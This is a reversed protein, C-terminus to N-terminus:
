CGIARTTAPTTSTRSTTSTMVLLAVPRATITSARVAARIRRNLQARNPAQRLAQRRLVDAAMTRDTIDTLSLGVAQGPLPFAYASYIREGRSRATPRFDDITFGQGHRVVDALHAILDGEADVTLVDGFAAGIAEDPDLDGVAAGEPNIATLRLSDDDALDDLAFVYLATKIGDVLDIFQNAKAQAVKTATVDLMVGRVQTARGSDDTEVRMHDQVWVVDGTASILRYGAGPQAQPSRAATSGACGIRDDPCWARCQGPRSWAEVSYGLLNTAEENVYLTVPAPEATGLRHRRHARTETTARLESSEGHRRRSRPSGPSCRPSWNPWRTRPRASSRWWASAWSGSSRPSPRSGGASPWRPTATIALMFLLAPALDPAVARLGGALVQDSYALTPYLVGTRRLLYDYVGNYPLGVLLLGLAVLSRRGGEQALVAGLGVLAIAAYRAWIIKAWLARQRTDSALSVPDIGHAVAEPTSPEVARGSGRPAADDAM